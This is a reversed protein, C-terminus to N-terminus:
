VLSQVRVREISLAKGSKGDIEICVGSIIASNESVEMKLPMQSLSRQVSVEKTSGIVSDEPGTMGIDTIYATGGPLIKEDASQVHTHTGVVASVMGDLFFSLSEKEESNEAHFDVIVVPTRERLKRVQEKGIRFPCDISPMSDRGQLNLVAILSGKRELLCSGKGPVGPPYNAPRLLLQDSDLMTNIEKHHWIHNGSSIVDVGMAFLKNAQEITIGLGDANEGNVVVLDAKYKQILSKLGVFLARIGSSGFVDGLILATLKDPM